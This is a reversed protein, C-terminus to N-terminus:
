TCNLQRVRLGTVRRWLALHDQSLLQSPMDTGSCRLRAGLGPMESSTSAFRVDSGWVEGPVLARLSHLESRLMENQAQTEQYRTWESSLDTMAEAYEAEIRQVDHEAAVLSEAQKRRM